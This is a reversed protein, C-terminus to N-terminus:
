CLGESPAKNQVYDIIKMLRSRLKEPLDTQDTLYRITGNYSFDYEFDPPLGERYEILARLEAEAKETEGCLFSALCAFLKGNLIVGPNTAEAAAQSALQHAENYRGVSVAAEALNLAADSDPKVLQWAQSYSQYSKEYEYTNEHQISGLHQWLDMRQPDLALANEFFYAADDYAGQQFSVLGITARVDANANHMNMYAQYLLRMDLNSELDQGQSFLLNAKNWFASFM